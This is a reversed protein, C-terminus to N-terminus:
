APLLTSNGHCQAVIAVGVGFFLINISKFPFVFVLLLANQYMTTGLKPDGPTRPGFSGSAKVVLQAPWSKQSNYDLFKQPVSPQSGHYVVDM